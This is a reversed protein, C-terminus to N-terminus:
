TSKAVLLARRPTSHVPTIKIEADDIMEVSYIYEGPELGATDTDLLDFSLTLTAGNDTITGTVIVSNVADKYFGLRCSTPTFNSPQDVTWEFARGNASRYDTDLVIPTRITGDSMVPATFTVTDSTILDTKAKIEADRTTFLPPAVLVQVGVTASRAIAKLAHGTAQEATLVYYYAGRKQAAQTPNGLAVPAAGDVILDGTIQLQNDEVYGDANFAQLWLRQGAVAYQM